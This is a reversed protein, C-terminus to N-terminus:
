TVIKEEGVELAFIVKERDKETPASATARNLRTTETEASPLHLM